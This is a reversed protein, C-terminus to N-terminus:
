CGHILLVMKHRVEAPDGIKTRLGGISLAMASAPSQFPSVEALGLVDSFPLNEGHFGVRQGFLGTILATSITQKRAAARQLGNSSLCNGGRRDM